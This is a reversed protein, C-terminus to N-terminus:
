SCCAVLVSSEAPVSARSRCIARCHQQRWHQLMRVSLTNDGHQTSAMLPLNRIGAVGASCAGGAGAAVNACRRGAHGICARCREIRARSETRNGGFRGASGMACFAGAGCGASSIFCYSAPLLRSRSSAPVSRDRWAKALGAAQTLALLVLNGPAPYRTTGARNELRLSIWPVFLPKRSRCPQFWM